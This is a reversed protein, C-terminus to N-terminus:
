NNIKNKELAVIRSINDELINKKDELHKASLGPTILLSINYGYNTKNIEKIEYTYGLKNKLGCGEMINNFKNKFERDSSNRIYSIGAFILATAGLEVFM